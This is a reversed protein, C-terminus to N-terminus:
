PTGPSPNEALRKAQQAEYAAVDGRKLTLTPIILRRGAPIASRDGRALRALMKVSQYGFAYPQQVVTAYIAGHQVGALATEEEDFCVIKVKGVKGADQVASLIAPGNYSWIGVLGALHPYKVLAESVNTMARAHDTDDTRVGLIRVRSGQLAERIGQIRDHANQADSKGVFLMILGGHPLAQKILRGAMRGAATNDTGIFCQRDSRAADSDSTILATKAAIQNLYPTENTPDVPSLAIGQVGKAILDDVDAKQTAVTGDDPMVFQLDVGPLERAAKECGKRCITWYDSPNNTVFALKTQGGTPLPTQQAKAMSASGVTVIAALLIAAANAQTSHTARSSNM